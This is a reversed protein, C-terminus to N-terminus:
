TSDRKATTDLMSLNDVVEHPNEYDVDNPYYLTKM